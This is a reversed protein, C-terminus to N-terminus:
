LKERHPLHDRNWRVLAVDNTDEFLFKLTPSEVHGDCFAVNAKNGHRLHGSFDFAESRMYDGSDSEGIAMMDSPVSVESEPIPVYKNSKSVKHGSLGLSKNWDGPFLIGFTNYGYTPSTATRLSASPCRWAGKYFFYPNPKSVDFGGIELQREWLAFKGNGEDTSFSPYAKNNLLFNQLGIGLQHLNSICVTQQAKRKAQLLAPLLLAALIAIIAIVVLLEM